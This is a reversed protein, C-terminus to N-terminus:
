VYDTLAVWGRIKGIYVFAIGLNNIYRADGTLPPDYEELGELALSSMLPPKWQLTQPSTPMNLEIDTWVLGDREVPSASAFDAPIFIASTGAIKKYIRQKM